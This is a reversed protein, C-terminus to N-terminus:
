FFYIAFFHCLSGVLVFLHWTLHNYKLTKLLYFPVGILYGLLGAVLLTFSRSPIAQYLPEIVFLAMAGMGVYALTSVLNFKHTFYYKFVTGILVMLWLIGLVWYGLDNRLFVMVFPTFSGAILFYISIHDFVRLRLRLRLKYVSHYLTSSSYVMLLSICFIISAEGFWAKSTAFSQYILIPCAFIFFILGLGHSVM